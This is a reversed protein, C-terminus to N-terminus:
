LRNGLVAEEIAALREDFAEHQLVRLMIGALYGVSNAVRPDIKGVRVEDITDSLLNVLDATSMDKLVTVDGIQGRWPKVEDPELVALKGARGGKVKAAKNAEAKDPDHFFCYDGGAKVPAKCPSGDKRKAKCKAM